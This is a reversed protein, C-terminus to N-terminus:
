IASGGLLLYAIFRFIVTSFILTTLLIILVKLPSVPLEGASRGTQGNVVFAYMKGRYKYNLFWVPLM